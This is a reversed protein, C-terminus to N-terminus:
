SVYCSPITQSFIANKYVICETSDDPRQGLNAKSEACSEPTTTYVRTEQLEESFIFENDPIISNCSVTYALLVTSSIDFFVCHLIGSLIGALVFSM